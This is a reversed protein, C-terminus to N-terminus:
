VSIEKQHFGPGLEFRLFFIGLALDVLIHPYKTIIGASFQENQPAKINLSEDILIDQLGHGFVPFDQFKHRFRHFICGGSGFGFQDEVTDIHVFDLLTKKDGPRSAVVATEGDIGNHFFSQDKAKYRRTSRFIRLGQIQISKKNVM